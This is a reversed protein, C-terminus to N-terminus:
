ALKGRPFLVGLTRSSPRLAWSALLILTLIIPMLIVGELDGGRVIGSVAAGMLDFFFGAYAWEKLRPFGPVLLAIVGLLKWVGLITLLYVPYGLQVNIQVLDHSRSLEAIGAMLMTFAFFVTAVWYGIPKLKMLQDEKRLLAPAIKSTTTSLSMKSMGEEQPVPSTDTYEQNM